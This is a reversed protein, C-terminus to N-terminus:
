APTPISSRPGPDFSAVYDVMTRVNQIQKKLDNGEKGAKAAARRAQKANLQLSRDTDTIQAESESDSASTAWQWYRRPRPIPLPSWAFHPAVYERRFSLTPSPRM